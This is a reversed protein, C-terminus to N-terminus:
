HLEFFVSYMTRKVENHGQIGLRDVPLIRISIVLILLAVWASLFLWTFPSPEPRISTDDYM